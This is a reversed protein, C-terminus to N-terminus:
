LWECEVLQAVKSMLAARDEAALLASANSTDAAPPHLVDAPPVDTLTVDEEVAWLEEEDIETGPSAFDSTLLKQGEKSWWSSFNTLVKSPTRDLCIFAQLDVADRLAQKAIQNLQGIELQASCKKSGDAKPPCTRWQEVHCARCGRIADKLSPTGRFPRKMKRFLSEM